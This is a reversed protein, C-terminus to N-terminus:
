LVIEVMPVSPIAGAEFQSLNVQLRDTDFRVPVDFTYGASVAAGLQPVAHPFFTIVGDAFVFDAGQIRTVGGVDVALQGDRPLKIPRQYPSFLDGYTKILAFDTEVGDGVGLLQDTGAFDQSPPCSKYDLPDHFRFGYLQGRREEFFEVVKYLDDLTKVGTGADYRRRSVAWRQNREERGSGLAVIETRREPGGTAGLAVALPFLVNHFGNM